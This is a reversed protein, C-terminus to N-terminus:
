LSRVCRCAWFNPFFFERSDKRERRGGTGCWQRQIFRVTCNQGRIVVTGPGVSGSGPKYLSPSRAMIVNEVCSSEFGLALAFELHKYCRILLSPKSLSFSCGLQCIMEAPLPIFYFSGNKKPSVSLCLYHIFTLQTQCLLPFWALSKGPSFWPLPALCPQLHSESYLLLTSTLPFAQLPSSLTSFLHQVSVYM